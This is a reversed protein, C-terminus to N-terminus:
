DEKILNYYVSSISAGTAGVTGAQTQLEVFELGQVKFEIIPNQNSDDNLEYYRDEVKVESAGVTEITPVYFTGGTVAALREIIRFRVNNSSNITVSPRVIMKDFYGVSVPSGVAMWAATVVQATSKLASPATIHRSM